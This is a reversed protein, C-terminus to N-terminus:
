TLSVRTEAITYLRRWVLRNIGVVFVSMVTVGILTRPLDGRATAQAIYAGLGTATLTRHGYSVVEAVISANWAGGSATIAGTVWSSFIAPGYLNKWRLRRNLRLNTAAERLDNPIASAGAIINFLIYWQTGLAMLLVGGINISIHTAILLATAFPFIFNAPFSAFVQVVPHAFRTVKPNLGIWVGVPVWILTSVVLLAMVRAFTALGAIFAVGFQGLGTQRHIYVLMAALGWAVLAGAV